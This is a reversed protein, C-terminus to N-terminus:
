FLREVEEMVIDKIDTIDYDEEVISKLDKKIEKEKDDIDEFFGEVEELEDTIEARRPAQIDAIRSALNRIFQNLISPFVYTDIEISRNYNRTPFLENIREIIYNWFDENSVSALVSDIEIRKERLYPLWKKLIPNNALNALKELTNYHSTKLGNYEEEIESINQIGLAEVMEPRIGLWHINERHSLKNAILLGSADFDTLIAINSESQKLYKLHMNLLLAM